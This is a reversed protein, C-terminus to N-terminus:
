KSPAPPFAVFARARVDESWHKLAERGKRQRLTKRALERQELNGVQVRKRAEVEILHVGYRSVIPDSVVGQQLGNMAEEFEPVFQGPATWGLSGGTTASGDQSYERAAGEFTLKGAAIDAKVKKLEAIVQEQNKREDPRIIIHRALTQVVSNEVQPKNRQLLKLIHFGAESRIPASVQGIRMTAAADAFIDPYDDQSRLGMAGGNAKQADSLKLLSAFDEKRARKAIDEARKRLEEIKQPSAGEPVAVLVQALNIREERPDQTRQLEQTMYDDLESESIKIQDVQYDQVRELLLEDRLDSRLQAISVGDKRLKDLLQVDSMNNQAAMNQLAQQVAGDEIRMGMERATQVQARDNVMKELLQQELETREPLAAGAQLLQLEVRYLRARLEQRTIPEDNVIAVIYDSVVQQSGDAAKYSLMEKDATMGKAGVHPAGLLLALSSALMWYRNKM